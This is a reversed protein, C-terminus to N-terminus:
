VNTSSDFLGAVYFSIQPDLLCVLTRQLSCWCVQIVRRLIRMVSSMPWPLLVTVACPSQQLAGRGAALSWFGVWSM